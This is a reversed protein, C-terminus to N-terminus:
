APPAVRFRRSKMEPRPLSGPLAFQIMPRLSLGARIATGIKEGLASQSERPLGDTELRLLLERMQKQEVIEGQFEVIEPFRRLINEIASPFVNIGRITIMDDTRGLLGGRLLTFVRRCRCRSSVAEALDGTRYRIVPSGVRGLNTLVVEGRNGDAVPRCTDPDILELVFDTENVHLGLQHKCEFGYAGMETMGCHDYAKASWLEQLCARTAPIGAGPEGAHITVRVGLKRTDIGLQRAVEALRLAYTPTCVLVTPRTERMLALRQESTQGGGTIAMCGIAHAAEFASWFGVFPGFSFAIFVQDGRKVGAGAYVHAWQKM